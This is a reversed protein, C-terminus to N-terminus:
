SNFSDNLRRAAWWPLYLRFHILTLACTLRYSSFSTDANTLADDFM